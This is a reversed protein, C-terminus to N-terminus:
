QQRDSFWMFTGDSIEALSEPIEVAVPVPRFLKLKRVDFASTTSHMQRAVQQFATRNTIRKRSRFHGVFVGDYAIIFDRYPKQYFSGKKGRSKTKKEPRGADDDVPDEPPEWVLGAQGLEAVVVPEPEPLDREERSERSELRLSKPEPPKAKRIVQTKPPDVAQTEPPNVNQVIKPEAPTVSQAVKPEPPNAKRVVKSGVNQVIKPEPAVNQAIEPEPPRVKRVVRSGVKQIIKPKSATKQAAPAPMPPDLEAKPPELKQAGSDVAVPEPDPLDLEQVFEKSDIEFLPQPEPVDLEQAFEKSDIELPPQEQKPPEAPPSAPADFERSDIQAPQDPPLEVPPPAQLTVVEAVSEEPFDMKTVPEVKVQPAPRTAQKAPQPPAAARDEERASSLQSSRILRGGPSGQRSAQNLLKLGANLVRPEIEASESQDGSAFSAAAGEVNSEEAAIQVERVAVHQTGSEDRPAGMSAAARSVKEKAAPIHIETARRGPLKSRAERAREKAAKDPPLVVEEHSKFDM